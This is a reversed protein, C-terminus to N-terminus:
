PSTLTETTSGVFGTVALDYAKVLDRLRANVTTAFDKAQSLLAWDMTVAALRYYPHGATQAAAQSTLLTQLDGVSAIRNYVADETRFVFVEPPMGTSATVTDVVRYLNEATVSRTQSHSLSAAM